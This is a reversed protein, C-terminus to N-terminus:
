GEFTGTIGSTQFPLSASTGYWTTTGTAVSYEMWVYFHYGATPTHSLHSVLLTNFSALAQNVPVTAGSPFAAIGDLGFAVSVAVGPSATTNTCSSLLRLDIPGEVVGMVVAIQNAASGNAQRFGATTYTWSATSDVRYLVRRVRNYYNWVLRKAASDETQGSVAGTRFSGVYLRTTAGTKVWRGDQKVLATARTTDNTWALLELAATGANDYVFVDYMQNAVAPVAISIEAFTRRTWTSAGDYLPVQNHIYPTYYLTGAATVDATTVPLATTLTLRGGPILGKVATNISATNATINTGDTTVQSEIDTLTKATVACMIQDGVAISRASSSEQTRTVTWNDGTGKSSVLVIEANTTLPNAGAPWVVANFPAAPFIAGLGATVSFTTGSAAPTPATAILAYGFNTHAQFSM